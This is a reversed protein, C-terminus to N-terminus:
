LNRLTGLFAAQGSDQRLTSQGRGTKVFEILIFAM